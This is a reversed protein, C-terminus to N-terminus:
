LGCVGMSGVQKGAYSLSAYHCHAGGSCDADTLCVKPGTCTPACLTPGGGDNLNAAVPCTGSVAVNSTDICCVGADGCDATAGCAVNVKAGCTTACSIAAPTVSEDLCAKNQAATCAGILDGYPPAPYGTCGGADAGAEAGTEPATADTAGDLKTTDDGGVCGVFCLALLGWRM